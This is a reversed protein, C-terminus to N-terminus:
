TFLTLRRRTYHSAGSPFSTKFPFSSAWLKTVVLKEYLIILSILTGGDCHLHSFGQHEAQMVESSFRTKRFARNELNLESQFSMLFSKAHVVIKRKSM